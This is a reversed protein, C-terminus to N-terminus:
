HLYVQIEEMYTVRSWPKRWILSLNLVMTVTQYLTMLIVWSIQWIEHGHFGGSKMSNSCHFGASKGFSSLDLPDIKAHLVAQVPLGPEIGPGPLLQHLTSINPLTEM